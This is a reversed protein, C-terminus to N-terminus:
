AKRRQPQSQGNLQVLAARAPHILGSGVGARHGLSRGHRLHHPAEAHDEILAIGIVLGEDVARGIAKITQQRLLLLDAANQGRKIADAQLWRGPQADRMLKAEADALRQARISSAARR